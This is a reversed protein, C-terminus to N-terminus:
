GSVIEVSEYTLIDYDLRFGAKVEDQDFMDGVLVVDQAIGGLAGNAEITRLVDDELRNNWTERPIGDANATYGYISVRVFRRIGIAGGVTSLRELRSGSDRIVHLSFAPALEEAVWERDVVLDQPYRGWVAGDPGTRDGTISALLAVLAVIAQEILPESM